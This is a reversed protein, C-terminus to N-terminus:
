KSPDAAKTGAEAAAKAEAESELMEDLAMAYTGPDIRIWGTWPREFERIIGGITGICVSYAVV